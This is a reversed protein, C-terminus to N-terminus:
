RFAEPINDYMAIKEQERSLMNRVATLADEGEVIILNNVYTDYADVCETYPWVKSFEVRDMGLIDIIPIQYNATNVVRVETGDDEKIVEDYSFGSLDFMESRKKAEAMIDSCYQSAFEKINM